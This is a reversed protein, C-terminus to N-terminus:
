EPNIKDLEPFVSRKIEPSLKVRRNDGILLIKSSILDWLEPHIITREVEGHVSGMAVVDFIEFTTLGDESPALFRIVFEDVRLRSEIANKRNEELYKRREDIIELRPNNERSERVFRLMKAIESHKKELRPDVKVPREM